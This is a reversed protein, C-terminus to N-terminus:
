DDKIRRPRPPQSARCCQGRGPSYTGLPRRKWSWPGRRGGASAPGSVVRRAPGRSGGFRARADGGTQARRTRSRARTSGNRPVRLVRLLSAIVSWRTPPCRRAPRPRESWARSSEPV